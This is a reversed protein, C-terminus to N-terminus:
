QLFVATECGLSSLIVVSSRPRIRLVALPRVECSAGAVNESSRIVASCSALRVTIKLTSAALMAESLADDGLATVYSTDVGLRSLYLATNLTDGGFGRAFLGDSAASFEVMCEGISAVRMSREQINEAGPAM